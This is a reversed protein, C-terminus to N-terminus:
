YSRGERNEYYNIFAKNLVAYGGPTPYNGTFYWDGSCSPIARKGVFSASRFPQKEPVCKSAPRLILGGIFIAIALSVENILLLYRYYADVAPIDFIKEILVAAIAVFSVIAVWVLLMTVFAWGLQNFQRRMGRRLAAEREPDYSNTDPEPLQKEFGNEPSEPTPINDMPELM